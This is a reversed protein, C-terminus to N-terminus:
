DGYNEKLDELSDWFYGAETDVEDVGESDGTWYRANEELWELAEEAEEKTKFRLKSFSGDGNDQSFEFWKM